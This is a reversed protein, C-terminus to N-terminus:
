LIEMEDETLYDIVPMNANIFSQAAHNYDFSAFESLGMPLFKDIYQKAEKLGWSTQTRVEKIAPIKQGNRILESIIMVDNFVGSSYPEPQKELEEEIELSRLLYKISLDSILICVGRGKVKVFESRM